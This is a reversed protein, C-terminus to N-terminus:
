KENEVNQINESTLIKKQGPVGSALKFNKPKM